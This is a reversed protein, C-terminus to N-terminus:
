NFNRKKAAFYKLEYHLGINVDVAKNSKICSLKTISRLFKNCRANYIKSLLHEHVQKVLEKQTAQPHLGQVAEEFKEFLTCDKSVSDKTM